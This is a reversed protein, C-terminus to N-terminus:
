SEAAAWDKDTPEEFSPVEVPPRKLHDRVANQVAAVAYQFKERADDPKGPGGLARFFPELRAVERPDLALVEDFTRGKAWEAVVDAGADM